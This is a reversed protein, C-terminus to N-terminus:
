RTRTLVGAPAWIGSPSTALTAVLSGTNHTAMPLYFVEALDAIRRAELFGGTNRLDPHFINVEALPCRAIDLEPTESADDQPM